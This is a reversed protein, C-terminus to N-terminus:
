DEVVDYDSKLIELTEEGFCGFSFRRVDCDDSNLPNPTITVCKAKIFVTIVGNCERREELFDALTDM